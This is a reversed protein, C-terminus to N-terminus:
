TLLGLFRVQALAMHRVDTQVGVWVTLRKRQTAGGWSGCHVERHCIYRCGLEKAFNHYMGGLMYKVSGDERVTKLGPPNELIVVEPLGFESRAMRLLWQYAYELAYTGTDDQL